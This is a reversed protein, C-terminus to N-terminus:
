PLNYFAVALIIYVGLMMVGELWNSEGDQCVFALILMSIVVSLVELLTFHLDLPQSPNIFLSSFLLVPAVFLAIQISSGVTIMLSVDLKNKIAMLVSSSHEAANGVVAVVFVGIFVPNMGFSAAADQASGVFIESVYAIGATALFLLILADRRSSVKGHAEGKKDTAGQNFISKHTHLLFLLNLAYVILLIVSIEESVHVVRAARGPASGAITYYAAPIVLSVAALALLTAGTSAATRNFKQTHHRIGGAVFSMGLVFLVNGVISGTISAKVLPYMVPGERIAVLGIILEAANGLSGNLFGGLGPGMTETLDETASGLLGALPIVALGSSLFRWVATTERMECFMAIPIMVLLFSLPTEALIRKLFKM